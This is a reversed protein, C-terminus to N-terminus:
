EMKKDDGMGIEGDREMSVGLGFVEETSFVWLDLKVSTSDVDQCRWPFVVRGEGCCQCSETFLTFFTFYTLFSPVMRLM